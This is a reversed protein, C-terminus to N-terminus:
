RNWAFYGASVFSMGVHQANHLAAGDLLCLELCRVCKVVLRWRFLLVGREPIDAATGMSGVVGIRSREGVM